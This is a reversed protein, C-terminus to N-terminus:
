AGTTATAAPELGLLHNFRPDSSLRRLDEDARAQFLNQPRLEISVKLHEIAPDAMGQLAYAAALAYHIEEGKPDLKASKGLCEVARDLHRANLASVGAVYYDEATKLPRSAPALRQGCLRLHVKARDAVGLPATQALKEFIEKAKDYNRRQFHRVAAEFSKIAAAYTPDGNPKQAGSPSAAANM